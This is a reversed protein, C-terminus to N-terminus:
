LWQLLVWKGRRLKGGPAKSVIYHKSTKQDGGEVMGAALDRSLAEPFSHLSFHWLSICQASGFRKWTEGWLSSSTSGFPFPHRTHLKLGAWPHTIPCAFVNVFLNLVQCQCNCQCLSKSVWFTIWAATKPLSQGASATGSYFTYFTGRALEQVPLTSSENKLRVIKKSTTVGKESM